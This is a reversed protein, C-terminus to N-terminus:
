KKEMIAVRVKFDDKELSTKTLMERNILDRRISVVLEKLAEQQQEETFKAGVSVTDLFANANIIIKDSCYLWCQDVEELFRERLALSARQDYFGKASMILESYKQEKRLYEEHLRKNNEVSYYTVLTGLIGLFAIISPMWHLLGKMFSSNGQSENSM